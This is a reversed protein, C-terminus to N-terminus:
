LNTDGKDVTSSSFILSGDSTVPVPIKLSGRCNDVFIPVADYRVVQRYRIGFGTVFTILKEQMRKYISNRKLVLGQINIKNFTLPSLYSSHDSSEGSWFPLIDEYTADRASVYNCMELLKILVQLQQGARFLPLCFEKLFCPLSVGDREKITVLPFDNYFGAKGYSYSPRDDVYDVIFEKYPDSTRAQYIWSRIFDCYPAYSRLFLFKLLAHHVPDADRLQAYLYTLLNGGRPFNQFELTAKATLNELSSISSNLAINQLSCINGLAEMNTRLEKTHLYVELLTIESNLSRTLCGVESPILSSVDDVNKSSRRVEVSAFLTDLACIYGELLKQVAVSFAQNVLSYSPHKIAERGRHGGECESDVQKTERENERSDEDVNLNTCLFYDVFKRALFVVSGSHGISRLIKGLANTSSSWHWLSPIRHSTRDAPDSCFSASLKEIIDLSSQVGQLANIVLRVMNAESITSPDYIPKLSSNSISIESQSVGSESAISEWPKSPLWHDESNLNQFLSAFNLDVAM